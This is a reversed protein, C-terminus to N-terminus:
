LGHSKPPRQAKAPRGQRRRTLHLVLAALTAVALAGLAVEREIRALDGLLAQLAAGAGYGALVWVASWAVAGLANLLVFRRWRLGTSGIVVPGALRLGYAFRVAVVALEPYREVLRRVRAAARRSAPFRDLLRDGYRRGLAFGIQDGLFGGVAGIAILAPLALHGRHAALGALVLISEGELLAGAFTVWYGHAAILQSLHIDM